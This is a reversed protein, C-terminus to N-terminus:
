PRRQPVPAPDDSLPLPDRERLDFPITMRTSGIYRQRM